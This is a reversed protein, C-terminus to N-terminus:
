GLIGLVHRHWSRIIYCPLASNVKDRPLKIRIYISSLGEWLEGCLGQIKYHVGVRLLGELVRTHMLECAFMINSTYSNSFLSIGEQPECTSFSYFIEARM